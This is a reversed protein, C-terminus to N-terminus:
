SRLLDKAYSKWGEFERYNGRLYFETAGIARHIVGQKQLELRSVNAVLGREIKTIAHEFRANSGFMKRLYMENEVLRQQLVQLKLIRSESAAATNAKFNRWRVQEKILDWRSVRKTRTTVWESTNTSHRRYVQLIDKIFKRCELVVGLANIWGDHGHIHSPVPFILPRMASRFAMCCGLLLADSSGGVSEIQGAVTLGTRRLNGDAIEADHVVVWTSSDKLLEAEVIEIKEPFWVDDQDSLFIIEGTCLSMAKEFNRAYGANKENRIVEVKFPATRAFDLLIDISEDSSTDDCIILEEPLRTQAAFSGLQEKLYQAGNYTAMAISVKM